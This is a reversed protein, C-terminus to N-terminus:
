FIGPLHQELFLKYKNVDMDTKLYELNPQSIISYKYKEAKLWPMIQTSTIPRAMDVYNVAAKADEFPGIVLVQNEKDLPILTLELSRNYYKERNYRTMATKAENLFVPDVKNLILMAMHPKMADYYYGPAATIVPKTVVSDISPAMIKKEVEKPQETPKTTVVDQQDPRIVRFVETVTFTDEPPREVQLNRLEEEIQSRRGLVDIMTKAKDALATGPYRTNIKNLIDLATSDQRERIYYVSEIYMQQPTWYGQG